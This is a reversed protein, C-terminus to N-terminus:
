EKYKPIVLKKFQIESFDKWNEGKDENSRYIFNSLRDKDGM